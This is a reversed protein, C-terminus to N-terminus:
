AVALSSPSIFGSATGDEWKQRQKQNTMGSPSRSKGNGKAQLELPMQWVYLIEALRNGRVQVPEQELNNKGWTSM